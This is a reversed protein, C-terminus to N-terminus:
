LHGNLNFGNIERMIHEAGGLVRHMQIQPNAKDFRMLMSTGNWQSAFRSWWQIDSRASVNLRVFNDLNKVATSLTILGQWIAKSVHQLYGILSLLERKKGAKRSEWVILLEWLRELKDTPLRIEMKLSELEM